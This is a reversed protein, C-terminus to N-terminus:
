LVFSFILWVHNAEWVPGDAHEIRISAERGDPRGRGSGPLRCRFDAGGLPAAPIGVFLVVAAATSM